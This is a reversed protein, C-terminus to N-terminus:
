AVCRGRSDAKQVQIWQEVQDLTSRRKLQKQQDAPPLTPGGQYTGAAIGNPELIPSPTSGAGNRTGVGSPLTSAGRSPARSPVRSVPASASAADSQQVASHTSSAPLSGQSDLELVRGPPERMAAAPSGKRLSCCDVTDQHIPELLVQHVRTRNSDPHPSGTTSVHNTQPVAPWTFTDLSRCRPCTLGLGGGSRHAHGYGWRSAAAGSSRMLAAEKMAKLWTNMDEQTDASFYYTRMGPHEAQSGIVSSQKYTLSRVGAHSAQLPLLDLILSSRTSHRVSLLLLLVHQRVLLVDFM